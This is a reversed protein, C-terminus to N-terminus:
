RGQTGDHSLHNDTDNVLQSHSLSNAEKLQKKASAILSRINTIRTTLEKETMSSVSKKAPSSTKKKAKAAIEAKHKDRYEKAQQREKATTKGDSNKKATKKATARSKQAAVRKKHLADTAEKLATQLSHLKKTLRVSRARAEAQQKHKSSQVSAKPRATGVRKTTTVPTSVRRGKLKKHLEYYQHAKVPDYPPKM